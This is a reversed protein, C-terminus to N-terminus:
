HEEPESESQLKRVEERLTKLEGALNTLAERLAANEVEKKGLVQYIFEISVEM